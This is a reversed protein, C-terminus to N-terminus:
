MFPYFFDSPLQLLFYPIQKERTEATPSVDIFRVRHTIEINLNPKMFFIDGYIYNCKAGVIQNQPFIMSGFRAYQILIEQGVLLQYCYGNLGRPTPPVNYNMVNQIPIWESSRNLKSIPWIALLDPKNTMFQIGLGKRDEESTMGLPNLLNAWIINQYQTCRTTWDMEYNIFQELYSLSLTCGSFADEGFRIPEVLLGREQLIVGCSGGALINWVGNNMPQKIGDISLKMNTTPLMTTVSATSGLQGLSSLDTINIKAGVIPRGILYGPNGSMPLVNSTNVQVFEVEYKQTFIKTVNGIIAYMEFQTIKGIIEYTIKFYVSIPVSSCVTGNSNDVITNPTTTPCSIPINTNQEYCTLIPIIQENDIESLKMKGFIASDKVTLLVDSLRNCKIKTTGFNVTAETDELSWTCYSVFSQGFRSYLSTFSIYIYIYLLSKVTTSNTFGSIATTDSAHYMGSILLLSTCKCFQVRYVASKSRQLSFPTIRQAYFSMSRRETPFHCM